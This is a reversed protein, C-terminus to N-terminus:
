AISFRRAETAKTYETYLEAHDKKFATTDFRHTTYKTYSVKYGGVMMREAGQRVMEAKLTDKLAEIEAGIEDQQAELEKLREITATIEAQKM